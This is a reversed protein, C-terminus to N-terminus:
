GEGESESEVVVEPDATDILMQKDLHCDICASSPGYDVAATEVVVVAEETPDPMDPTFTPPIPTDPEEPIMTETAQQPAEPQNTAVEVPKSCGSVALGIALIIVLFITRPSSCLKEFPKM